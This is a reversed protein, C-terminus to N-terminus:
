AACVGDTERMTFFNRKSESNMQRWTKEKKEALEAWFDSTNRYFPSSLARGASCHSARLCLAEACLFVCSMPFHSQDEACPM